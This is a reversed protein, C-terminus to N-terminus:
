EPRNAWWAIAAFIGFMIAVTVAAVWLDSAALYGRGRYSEYTRYSVIGIGGLLPISARKRRFLRIRPKHKM